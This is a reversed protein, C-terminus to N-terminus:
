DDSVAAAAEAEGRNKQQARSGNGRPHKGGPDRAPEEGLGAAHPLKTVRLGAIRGRTAQSTDCTLLRVERDAIAQITAARDIIEDDAIPLRVHGAQDLVIEVTIAGRVSQGEGPGTRRLVGTTNATIAADLLGLTHGARWRPHTRGSEKLRDLEDVVVIPFLLHIEEDGPLGMVKHLDTDALPSPSNLYFSSDAVTLWTPGGWRLIHANLADIAADLASIREALELSVLGNVLRQQDTGALHGVGALLQGHTRTLVLRDIDADSIQGRLLRASNNGWELYHLLRAYATAVNPSQANRAALQISKLSDLIGNRNAGPLPTILM